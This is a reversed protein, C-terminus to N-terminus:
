AADGCRLQLVTAFQMCGASTSSTTCGGCGCASAATSAPPAAPRALSTMRNAAAHGLSATATSSTTTCRSAARLRDRRARARGPRDLSRPLARVPGAPVAARLAAPRPSVAVGRRHRRQGGAALAPRRPQQAAHGVVHRLHREGDRAVVRADSYVLQAGGLAGLLAALKDPHWVDDQDALAVYGAEAPVLALAREFNRYFGLRRPSRSLVFRPRRRRDGSSREGASPASSCDDSIM